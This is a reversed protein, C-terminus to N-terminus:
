LSDLFGPIIWYSASIWWFDLLGLIIWYDSKYDLFGIITDPCKSFFSTM